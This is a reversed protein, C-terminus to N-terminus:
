ESLSDTYYYPPQLLGDREIFAVCFLLFAVCVCENISVYIADIVVHTITHFPMSNDSADIQAKIYNERRDISNCM